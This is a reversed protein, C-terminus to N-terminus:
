IDEIRFTFRTDTPWRIDDRAVTGDLSLGDHAHGICFIRADGGPMSAYPKMGLYTCHGPKQDHMVRRLVLADYPRCLALRQTPLNRACWADLLDQNLFEKTCVKQDAPFGFNLLKANVYSVVEQPIDNLVKDTKDIMVLAAQGIHCIAKIGDFLMRARCADIVVTKWPLARGEIIKM